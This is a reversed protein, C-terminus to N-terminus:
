PLYICLKEYLDEKQIVDIDTSLRSIMAIAEAISISNEPRFTNDEYGDIYPTYVAEEEDEAAWSSISTLGLIIAM